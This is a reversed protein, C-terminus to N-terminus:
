PATVIEPIVSYGYLLSDDLYVVRLCYTTSAPASLDRLSLDWMGDENPGFASVSDSFEITEEYTQVVTPDVGHLPDNANPTLTWGDVAVANNYFAIATGGDVDAYTEDAGGDAECAGGVQAAFQLKFQGEDLWLETGGAHVLLRLRFPTGQTPATVPTDQAGLPAGVDIESLILSGDSILRKEIRLDPGGDNGVIYLGSNSGSPIVAVDRASESLAASTVVGASGFGADLAGTDQRLKEIRWNGSGAAEDDGVVYLYTADLGVQFARYGGPSSVVGDVDFGTELAGSDLRRKEIRWDLNGGPSEDGVVFLYTSDIAIGRAQLGSGDSVVGDGDFTAELVGSDLRRKEIRWTPASEEGVVYLYTSDIAIENASAGGEGAVIGDTSFATDLAGDSLSRKEIRIGASDSGVVYMSSGDIAIGQAVGGVAETIVGSTGFTTDLVGATLDRKEIRWTGGGGDDSGVVYMYTGDIAIDEAQQSAGAGNIIGDTDFATVLAGSLLRRKEIRWNPGTEVGVVYMYVVNDTAMGYAAISSSSGTVVGGAGFAAIGDQNAFWRYGSQDLTLPLRKAFAVIQGRWSETGGATATTSHTGASGVHLDAASYTSRQGGGGNVFDSLESFGNTWPSFSTEANTVLGAIILSDDVSTTVNGSSVATGSGSASGTIPVVASDIDCYEYVRLGLRTPAGGYSITVNTPESPGAFKYFIAQGPAAETEAIAVTWGTPTNVTRSDRNSAIAVLLNNVMPPTPYSASVSSGSATGTGKQQVTCGVSIATVNFSFESTNGSASTATATLSDGDVLSGTGLNFTFENATPDVLGVQSNSDNGSGEIEAGIYEGGEGNGSADAAVKFFEVTAGPRAEGSVTLGGATLYATYIVPFNVLNNAGSDPDGADNATLYPVTGVNFDDGSENLDIGISGNDFIGNRTITNGTNGSQTIRVGAGLNESILNASIVNGTSQNACGQWFDCSVRVGSTEGAGVGNLLITNNDIVNNNSSFLVDIGNGRANALLNGRVTNGSSSELLVLCDGVTDLLGASRCENDEVMWGTSLELHVADRYANYGILNNRLTGDTSGSLLLNYNGSRAGAGPDTFGSASTGILNQEILAGSTSDVIIDAEPDSPTNGFGYIAIGRVVADAASIALGTGLSAGDAIQIEPAGVTSLALGDVGVFGGTGLAGPNTDGVNNTQTLGDVQTAGDTIVPLLSTPAIVAVGAAFNPDAPRGFPDTDSPINFQSANVGAAANGNLLFQRLSGQGGNLSNVILNYSFGLDVGNVGAGGIIVVTVNTDGIGAGPATTVDSVIPADGGLAGAGGNGSVGDQEYTQEALASSFGLNYGAAPPTDSDGLTASVVRVTYSGDALGPFVYNGSGDTTTFIVFGVGDYLEVRV